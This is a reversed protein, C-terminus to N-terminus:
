DDSDGDRGHAVLAPVRWCRVQADHSCGMLWGVGEGDEVGVLREIGDDGTPVVTDIRNPLVHVIRIAGDGCGAAVNNEDIRVLADVSTRFRPPMRDTTDGWNGATYLSILGGSTGVIAKKSHRVFQVCSLEDDEPDSVQVPKSKRIDFVALTGDSSTALLTNSDSPSQAFASIYETQVAYHQALKRQRTDWVNVVGAEDGTVVVNSDVALVTNIAGKHADKKKLIIASTDADIVALTKDKGATFLVKGDTGFDVARCSGKHLKVKFVEKSKLNRVEFKADAEGDDEDPPITCRHGVVHGSILATAVIGRRHHASRLTSRLTSC